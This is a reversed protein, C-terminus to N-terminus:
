LFSRRFLPVPLEEKLETVLPVKLVEVLRATAAAVPAGLHACGV